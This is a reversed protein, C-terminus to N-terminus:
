TASKANVLSRIAGAVRRGSAVKRSCETEDTGSENLVCGLYKFESVHELRIGGVCVECELWM